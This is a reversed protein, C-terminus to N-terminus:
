NAPAATPLTRIHAVLADVQPAKLEDKFARMATGPRGNQISAKLDSDSRTKQWEGDNLARIGLKAFMPTPRGTKGHCPACKTEYLAKAEGASPGKAVALPVCLAAASLALLGFRLPRLTM